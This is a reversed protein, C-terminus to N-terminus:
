CVHGGDWNRLGQWVGPQFMSKLVCACRRMVEIKNPNGEPWPKNRDCAGMSHVPVQDCACMFCFFVHTLLKPYQYIHSQERHLTLPSERRCWAAM